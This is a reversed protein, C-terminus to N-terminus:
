LNLVAQMDYIKGDKKQSMLYKVAKVAGSAFCERTSARHTLEIREGPGAFIVTHDGAVDGARIAHIGLEDAGLKRPNMGKSRGYKAIEDLNKGLAKSIVEATTMATGSPADKKQHHHTEVIEIDWDQLYKTIEAAIKFFINVGTSMNTAKVVISKSQKCAIALKDNFDKSLGTTGIVLNIGYKAAILAYKETAHAITFDIVVDPPSNKCDQEFNAETEVIKVGLPKVGHLQGLELGLCPSEPITYAHVIQLSPDALLQGGIMRGMKGDAGLLSVKIIM